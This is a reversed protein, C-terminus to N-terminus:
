TERKRINISNVKPLIKYKGDVRSVVSYILTTSFLLKSHVREIQFM